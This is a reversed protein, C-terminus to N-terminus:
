RNKGKVINETIQHLQLQRAALERLEAAIDPATAAEGQYKRGYMVTRQYIRKQMAHIMKLEQLLDILRENRNPDGGGGQNGGGRNNQRQEIEKKLAEIMEKLTEIIDQEIAQTEPGPDTKYLRNSVRAMDQRLQRMVEAFAVSSGEAQLLAIARDAEAVIEDERRSLVGSLIEEERTPKKDPNTQIRQDLKVTDQYVAEQMALMKECRRQLDALVRLQEEERYQRLLEELKQRAQRLLDAAKAQDDSAPKREDKAIRNEASRQYGHADEIRERGPVGPQQQGQQGGGRAQGPQGGGQQGGGQQGGGQQGGAQGGGQQGGGQQGGAQSGGQQGGGQQGGGQQGGAGRTQPNAAGEGPGRAQAGQSGQDGGPKGGSAQGDGPKDGPKGGGAQGDGPKDGPKGGGAQGDGPKDGPKGGGAQGDGPKDGPKGGGAQGGSPKDGPKDGGQGSDSGGRAQGPKSGDGSQNGGRAQSGSENPSGGRAQGTQESGPKGSDPTRAQPNPAGRGEDRAQGPQGSGSRGEGRAQAQPRENKGADRAEGRSPDGQGSRAQELQRIQNLIEEVRRSAAEQAKKADEKSINPNDNRAQAVRQAREAEELRRVLEAYLEMEKKKLSEDDPSMLIDLLRQMAQQVDGGKEVVQQIEKLSSLTGPRKLREALDSVNLRVNRERAERLARYIIRAKEVDGPNNRREMLQAIRLLQEELQAYRAAVVAQNAALEDTLQNSSQKPAPQGKEDPNGTPQALVALTLSWTLVAVLSVLLTLKHSTLMTAIGGLGTQSCVM